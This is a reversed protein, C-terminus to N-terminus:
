AGDGSRVGRWDLIDQLRQRQARLTAATNRALWAWGQPVHSTWAVCGDMASGAAVSLIAASGGMARCLGSISM